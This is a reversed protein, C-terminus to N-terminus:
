YRITVVPEKKEVNRECPDELNNASNTSTAHRYGCGGAAYQEWDFSGLPEGDIVINAKATKTANSRIKAKALALKEASGLSKAKAPLANNAAEDNSGTIRRSGRKRQSSGHCSVSRTLSKKDNTVMSSRLIKVGATSSMNSLQSSDLRAGVSTSISPPARSNSSSRFPQTRNPMRAPIPSVSQTLRPNGRTKQGLSSFTRQIQTRRNPRSALPSAPLPSEELKSASKQALDSMARRLKNRRGIIDKPRTTATAHASVSSLGNLLNNRVPNVSRNAPAHSSKSRRLTKKSSSAMASQISHASQFSTSKRPLSKKKPAVEKVDEDESDSNKEVLLQRYKNKKKNIRKLSTQSLLPLSMTSSSSSNCESAFSGHSLSSSSMTLDPQQGQSLEEMSRDAEKQLEALDLENDEDKNGAVPLEYKKVAGGQLRRLVLNDLSSKIQLDYPSHCDEIFSHQWGSSM